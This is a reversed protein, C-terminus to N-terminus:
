PRQGTRDVVPGPTPPLRAGSPSRGPPCRTLLLYGRAVLGASRWRAVIGRARDSRVTLYAALLDYPAGYMDGMLVLGAVDRAGLRVMGADARRAPATVTVAPRNM